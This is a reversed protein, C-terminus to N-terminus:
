RLWSCRRCGSPWTPAAAPSSCSRPWGCRVLVLALVGLRRGTRRGLGTPTADLLEAAPEDVALAAAAALLVALGQLVSSATGPDDLGPATVALLALAGGLLLAVARLPLARVELRSM